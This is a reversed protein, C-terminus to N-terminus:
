ADPAENIVRITAGPNARRAWSAVRKLNGIYIGLLMGNRGLAHVVSMERARESM